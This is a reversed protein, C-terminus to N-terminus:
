PLDDLEDDYSLGGGLANFVEFPWAYGYLEQIENSFAYLAATTVRNGRGPALESCYRDRVEIVAKARLVGLLALVVFLVKTHENTSKCVRALFAPRQSESKQIFDSILEFNAREFQILEERPAAEFFSRARVAGFEDEIFEGLALADRWAHLAYSGMDKEHIPRAKPRGWGAM